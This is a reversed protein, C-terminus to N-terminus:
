ECKIFYSGTKYIGEISEENDHKLKCLLCSTEETIGYYDFNESSFERYLNSYQNLIKNCFYTRDYTSNSHFGSLVNTSISVEAKLLIFANTQNIIYQIQADKLESITSASYTIYKIRDIGVGGEDFLKLIKRARETKKRLNVNTINPLFLKMKKYIKLRATKDKTKGDATLNRVKNEFELSYYFWCLIQKQDLKIAKDFLELLSQTSDPIMDQICPKSIEFINVKSENLSKNGSAFSFESTLEQVLGKVIQNKLKLIESITDSEDLVSVKSIVDNQNHYKTVTKMDELHSKTPKIDSSNNTSNNHRSKRSINQSYKEATSRKRKYELELFADIERDKLSKQGSVSSPSSNVKNCQNSPISATSIKPIVEMPFTDEISYAYKVETIVQTQQKMEKIDYRLRAVETKLKANEVNYKANKEIIQRLKANEAEIETFKLLKERLESIEANEKRLKAIEALCFQIQVIDLKKEQFIHLSELSLDFQLLIKKKKHVFNKKERKREIVGNMKKM